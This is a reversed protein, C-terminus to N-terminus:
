KIWLVQQKKLTGQMGRCNRGVCQKKSYSWGHRGLDPDFWTVPIALCHSWANASIGDVAIPTWLERHESIANSSMESDKSKLSWQDSFM